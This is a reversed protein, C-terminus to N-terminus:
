EGVLGADLVARELDDGPLAPLGNLGQYPSQQLIAAAEDLDLGLSTLRVMDWIGPVDVPLSLQGM